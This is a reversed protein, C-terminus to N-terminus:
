KSNLTMTEVETHLSSQLAPGFELCIQGGEIIVSHMQAACHTLRVALWSIIALHSRQEEDKKQNRACLGVLVRREVEGSVLPDVHAARLRHDVRGIAGAAGLAGVDGLGLM